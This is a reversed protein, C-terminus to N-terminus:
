FYQLVKNVIESQEKQHIKPSGVAPSARFTRGIYKPQVKKIGLENVLTMLQPLTYHWAGMNQPEEQVWVLNKLKPAANIFSAIQAKPWPYLQEVRVLAAKKSKKDAREKDIDYYVKGSCLFLTEM